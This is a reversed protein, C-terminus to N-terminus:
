GRVKARKSHKPRTERKAQRARLQRDRAWQEQRSLRHWGCNGCRGENLVGRECHACLEVAQEPLKRNALPVNLYEALAQEIIMTLRRGEKEAQQELRDLLAANLRWAVKQKSV